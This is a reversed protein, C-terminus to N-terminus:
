FDADKNGIHYLSVFNDFAMELAEDLSCGERLWMETEKDFDDYKDPNIKAMVTDGEFIKQLDPKPRSFVGSVVDAISGIVKDSVSLIKDISDKASLTQKIVRGKDNRIYNGSYPDMLRVEVQSKNKGPLVYVDVDDEVFQQYNDDYKLANFFKDSVDRQVNNMQSARVQISGFSPSFNSSINM